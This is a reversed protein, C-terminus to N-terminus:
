SGELLSRDLIYPEAHQQDAQLAFGRTLHPLAFHLLLIGAM